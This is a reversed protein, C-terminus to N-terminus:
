FISPYSYTAWTELAEAPLQKWNEIIRNVIFHKGIDKKQKRYRIKRFHDVRSLYYARRLRDRIAKWAREGSHTKFLACLLAIM